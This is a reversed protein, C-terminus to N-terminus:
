FITSFPRRAVRFSRLSVSFSARTLPYRGMIIPTVACAISSSQSCHKSAPISFLKCGGIIPQLSGRAGLGVCFEIINQWLPMRLIQSLFRAAPKLGSRSDRSNQFVVSVHQFSIEQHFEVKLNVNSQLRDAHHPM